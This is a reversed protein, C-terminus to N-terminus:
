ASPGPSAGGSGPNALLREAFDVREQLDTVQERVALMEETRAVLDELLADHDERREAPAIRKAIARGIPGLLLAASAAGWALYLAFEGLETM